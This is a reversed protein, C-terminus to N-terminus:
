GRSGLQLAPAGARWGARSFSILLNIFGFPDRRWFPTMNGTPGKLDRRCIIRAPPPPNAPAPERKAITACGTLSLLVTLGLRGADTRYTM